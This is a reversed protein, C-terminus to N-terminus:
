LDDGDGAVPPGPSVRFKGNSREAVSRKRHFVSRATAIVRWPRKQCMVDIEPDTTLAAIPPTVPGGTRFRSSLRGHLTARFRLGDCIQRNSRTAPRPMM